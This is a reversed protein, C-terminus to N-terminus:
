QNVELVVPNSISHSPLEVAQLVLDYGLGGRVPAVDLYIGQGAPDAVGMLAPANRLGLLFLPDTQDMALVGFGNLSLGSGGKIPAYAAVLLYPQGPTLGSLLVQVPDGEQARPPDLDALPLPAGSYLALADAEVANTFGFSSEALGNWVSGGGASSFITADDSSPSQVTFLLEGQEWELAKVDGISAAQGLANEVLLDIEAASYLVSATTSGAPLKWVADDEVVLQNPGTSEDEALSFLLSGDPQFAIGDVDINGDNADVAGVLLAESYVVYVGVGALDPDFRLVDGDLLGAQDSVLSFHMGATLPSGISQPVLELADLNGPLDFLGDGNLDGLYFALTQDNLFCRSGGSSDLLVLENNEISGAPLEGTGTLSIVAQPGTQGSALGFALFFCSGAM